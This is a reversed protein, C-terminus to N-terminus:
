APGLYLASVRSGQYINLIGAGFGFWSEVKLRGGAHNYSVQSTVPFIAGNLNPTSYSGRNIDVDNVRFKNWCNGGGSVITLLSLLYFGAPATVTFGQARWWTGSADVADYANAKEDSWYGFRGRYGEAVPANNSGLSHGEISTTGQAVNINGLFVAGLSGAPPVPPAATPDPIDKVIRLTVDTTAGQETQDSLVAWLGDMRGKDPLGPDVTVRTPAVYGLYTGATTKFVIQGEAVDVSLSPPTTATMVCQGGVGAVVGPRAFVADLVRRDDRANYDLTQAWLPPVPLEPEATAQVSM